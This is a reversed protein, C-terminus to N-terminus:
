WGDRKDAVWASRGARSSTCTRRRRIVPAREQGTAGRRKSEASREVEPGHRPPESMVQGRHRASFESPARNQRSHPAVNAATQGVQPAFTSAPLLNQSLQPAANAAAGVAVAAADRNADGSDYVGFCRASFIRVDFAASSPSRLCTVTSKASRLPEARRGRRAPSWPTKRYRRRPHPRGSVEVADADRLSPSERSFVRGAGEGTLAERGDERVAVCSEPGTHTAVGEGHSEKM